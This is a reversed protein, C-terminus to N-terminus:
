GHSLTSLDGAEMGVAGRRDHRPRHDQHLRDPREAEVLHLHTLRVEEVSGRQLGRTCAASGSRIEAPPLERRSLSGSGGCRRFNRHHRWAAIAISPRTPASLAHRRPTSRTESVYARAYGSTRRRGGGSGGLPGGLCTGRGTRLPGCQSVARLLAPPKRESATRSPSDSPSRGIAMRRRRRPAARLVDRGRPASAYKKQSVTM